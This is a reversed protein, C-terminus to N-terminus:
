VGHGFVVEAGGNVVAPTWELGFVALFQQNTGEIARHCVQRAQVGWSFARWLTRGLTLGFCWWQAHPSKLAEPCVVIFGNTSVSAQVGDFVFELAYGVAISETLMLVIDGAWFWLGAKVKHKGFYGLMTLFTGVVGPMPSWRATCYSTAQSTVQLVVRLCFSNLNLLNSLVFMGFMAWSMFERWWVNRSSQDQWVASSFQVQKWLARVFMMFRLIGCVIVPLHFLRGRIVSATLLLIAFLSLTNLFAFHRFQEHKLSTCLARLFEVLLAM